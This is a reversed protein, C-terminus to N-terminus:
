LYDTLNKGKKKEMEESPEREPIKKKKKHLEEQGTKEIEKKTKSGSINFSDEKHRQRAKKKLPQAVPPIETSSLVEKRSEYTPPPDPTTKSKEPQAISEIIPLNKKGTRIDDLETGVLEREYENTADEIWKFKPSKKDVFHELDEQSFKGSLWIKSLYRLAKNSKQSPVEKVRGSPLESVLHDLVFFSDAITKKMSTHTAKGLKLSIDNRRQRATWNQFFASYRNITRGGMFPTRKAERVGVSLHFYFYKLLRWEQRRMIRSQYRDARSIDDYMEALESKVQPSAFYLANEQVWNILEKYEINLESTMAATELANKSAGFIRRLADTVELEHDRGKLTVLSQKSLNERGQSLQTLDNIAARLDGECTTAISKLVAQDASIKEKELIKSLVTIIDKQSPPKLQLFKGSLRLTRLKPEYPDNATAILPWHAEKAVKLVASVGGRDDSGSLGDVEDLLIIKGKYGLNPKTRTARGVLKTIVGENRQDSANFEVIEYGLEKAIAITGSTKGVGPPGALLAIRQKQSRYTIIWQYLSEFIEHNGMIDKRSEPAYVETWAAIM